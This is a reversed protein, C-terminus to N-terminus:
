PVLDLATGGEPPVAEIPQEPMGIAEVHGTQLRGRIGEPITRENKSRLEPDVRTRPVQTHEPFPPLHTGLGVQTREHARIPLKLPQGTPRVEPVFPAVEGVSQPM